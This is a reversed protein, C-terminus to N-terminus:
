KEDFEIGKRMEKLAYPLNTVIDSAIISDEGLYKKSIDGAIGHIYAALYLMELSDKRALLATAIGTLVDGSGATAMGSNGTVNIYERDKNIVISNRGKLLLNVDHEEVFSKASSIRNDKIEGIDIGSLRSFEMEHATIYVNKKKDLLERHEGLLNIADADIVLPGRYNEFLLKLLDQAGQGRGMGTGIGIADMGCAIKVFEGKDVQGFEGKSDSARTYIIPETLKIGLINEISDPAYVYTLGAGSRMASRAALTISGSMGKKGGILMVKGYDYKNYNDNREPLLRALDLDYNIDREPSLDLRRGYAVCVAYEKEHTISIDIRDIKRYDLLIKLKRNDLNIYPAGKDHLIEIDKFWLRAGLGTGFLKSVAEKACYLGAITENSENKSKIYSTEKSTFIRQYFNKHRKLKEVRDIKLIDVGIM